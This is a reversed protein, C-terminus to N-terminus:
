DQNIMISKINIGLPIENSKKTIVNPRWRKEVDVFLEIVDDDINNLSLQIRKTQLKKIPVKKLTTGGYGIIIITPIISFIELICNNNVNKLIPLYFTAKGTTWLGNFPEHIFVTNIGVQLFDRKEKFDIKNKLKLDRLFIKTNETIVKEIIEYDSNKLINTLRAPEESDFDESHFITKSSIGKELRFYYLILNKINNFKQKFTSNNANIENIIKLFNM